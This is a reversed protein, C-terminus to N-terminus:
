GCEFTALGGQVERVISAWDGPEPQRFIRVTPYWPSDNRGRFWRWDTDFRNLLWVPKGMAAALHATSTDVSIVLDLNEILAATDSFDKLAETFDAIAPGDWESAQLAKLQAVAEEGKQLSYFDVGSVNLLSLLALPINRRKNVGWAEPLDLRFGGSWVLGVRLKKKAGLRTAWAEAKDPDAFLYPMPAPITEVTTKFALPLSMVPCYVDFEPLTQGRSVVTVACPLTHMITVLPESTELIVEAGMDVLLPLYRACQIEDGMGQEPYILIRKGVLSTDGLWLPQDYVRQRGIMGPTKWREEYLAWGQSYDGTTLLLQSLNWQVSVLNPDIRIAEQYSSAAEITRGLDQLVNGLNSHANAFGPQFKVAIRCSAEAEEFRGLDRLVNGLNSHADAFDPSLRIAARHACEAEELRGLEQLVNGLNSYAHPLNPNMRIAERFAKEAESKRGLRVLVRGIDNQLEPNMPELTAAKVYCALSESLREQLLLAYGLGRQAEASDPSLSVAANYAAEAESWSGLHMHVNAIIRFVEADSANLNIARRLCPLSQEYRQSNEYIVGLAKWGFFHEPFRNTLDKALREAQVRDGRNYASLIAEIENNSPLSATRILRNKLRAVDHDPLGYRQAQKIAAQADSQRHMDLLTSIYSIWYQACQPVLDVAVKFYQLAGGSKGVSAGLVGLNHNADPHGPDVKLIERYLVEARQLNGSQHAEIAKQLWGSIPSVVSEKCLLAMSLKSPDERKKSDHSVYTGGHKKSLLRPQVVGKKNARKKSKLFPQSVAM